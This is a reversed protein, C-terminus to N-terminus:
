ALRLLCTQLYRADADSLETPYDPPLGGMAMVRAHRGAEGSALQAAGVLSFGRPDIGEAVTVIRIANAMNENAIRIIASAAETEDFGLREGLRAVAARALEPELPLHQPLHLQAAM